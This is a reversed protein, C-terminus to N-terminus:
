LIWFDRLQENMMSNLYEVLENEMKLHGITPGFPTLFSKKSTPKYIGMLRISVINFNNFSKCNQVLYTNLYIIKTM